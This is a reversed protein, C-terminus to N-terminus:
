KAELAAIRADQKKIHEMLKRINENLKRTVIEQNLMVVSTAASPKVLLKDLDEYAVPWIAYERAKDNFGNQLRIFRKNETAGKPRVDFPNKIVFGGPRFGDKKTFYRVHEGYRVQDWFEPPIELYGATKEIIEAETWDRAPHPRAPGDRAELDFPNNKKEM